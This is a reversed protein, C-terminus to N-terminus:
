VNVSEKASFIEDSLVRFTPADYSSCAGALNIARVTGKYEKATKIALKKNRCMAFRCSKPDILSPLFIGYLKAAAM